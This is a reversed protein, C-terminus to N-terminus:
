ALSVVMGNGINPVRANGPLVRILLVRHGGFGLTFYLHTHCM